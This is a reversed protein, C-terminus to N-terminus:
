RTVEHTNGWPKKEVILLLGPGDNIIADGIPPPFGEVLEAVDGLRIPTGNRVAVPVNALDEPSKVGSVYAVPLRQNPTDIFGGGGIEVAKETAAVVEKATVGNARLRNPNILVQIQRDRQGWIAVNAVGEIAMLRPSDDM